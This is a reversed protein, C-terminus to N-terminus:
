ERRKSPLLAVVLAFLAAAAVAVILGLHSERGTEPLGAPKYVFNEFVGDKAQYGDIALVGRGNNDNVSFTVTAVHTDYRIGRDDGLVEQARLTYSGLHEYSIDPFVISGDARNGATALQKCSGDSQVECLTFRFEDDHLTPRSSTYGTLKKELTVRVPVPKAYYTSSITATITGDSPISGDQNTIETVEYGNPVFQITLTYKTQAPLEKITTTYGSYVPVSTNGQSDFNAQVSGDTKHPKKNRTSVISVDFTGTVPTTADREAHVTIHVPNNASNKVTETNNNKNHVTMAIALAGAPQAVRVYVAPDIFNWKADGKMLSELTSLSFPGTYPGPDKDRNRWEFTQKWETSDLANLYASVLEVGGQNVPPVGIETINPVNQFVNEYSNTSSLKGDGFRWDALAAFSMQGVPNATNVNAFMYSLSTVNGMHWKGVPTVDHINGDGAFVANMGYVTNTNWNALATLDSLSTCNEFLNYMEQLRGLKWNGLGTNATGLDTLKDNYWFMGNIHELSGVNWSGLPTLDEIEGGDPENTTTGAGSDAKKMSFMSSAYRLSKTMDGWQGLPTLDALSHCGEFMNSMNTVNQVNWGALFDLNTLKYCRQFMFQLGKAYWMNWHYGGHGDPEQRLPDLNELSYCESFMGELGNGDTNNMGELYWNKLPSVDKLKECHKFAYKFSRINRTDVGSFASIDELSADNNCINEVESVDWWNWWGQKATISKANHLNFFLYSLKGKAQIKYDISISTIDNAWQHWPSQQSDIDSQPTYIVQGEATGIHLVGDELWWQCNDGVTGSAQSARPQASDGATSESAGDDGPMPKVSPKLSESSTSSPESATGTESANPATSDAQMDTPSATPSPSSDGATNQTSMAGPYAEAVQRGWASGSIFGTSIFLIAATLLAIFGKFHKM